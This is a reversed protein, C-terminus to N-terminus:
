RGAITTSCLDIGGSLLLFPRYTSRQSGMVARARDDKLPKKGRYIIFIAAPRPPHGSQPVLRSAM